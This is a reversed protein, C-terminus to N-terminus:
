YAPPPLLKESLGDGSSDHQAGGRKAISQLKIAQGASVGVSILTQSDMMSLVSFDFVDQEALIIITKETVGGRTLVGLFDDDMKDSAEKMAAVGANPKPQVSVPQPAWGGTRADPFNMFGVGTGFKITLTTHVPPNTGACCPNKVGFYQVEDLPITGMPHSAYPNCYGSPKMKRGHPNWICLRVSMSPHENEFKKLCAILDNVAKQNKTSVEKMWKDTFMFLPITALYCTMCQLCGQAFYSCKNSGAGCTACPCAAGKTDMLLPQYRNCIHQVDSKLKEYESETCHPRYEADYSPWKFWFQGRGGSDPISNYGFVIHKNAKSNASDTM